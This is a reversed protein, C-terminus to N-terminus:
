VSQYTPQAFKKILKLVEEQTEIYYRAASKRSGVKVTISDAPLELFMDEDTADDGIAFIFDPKFDNVIEMAARGKNLESNKVEIVKNGMLLQLGHHPLLYRLHDVLEQARLNGLGSQVKRYHWALSYNKEEVVSGATMNTFKTMVHKIPYKWRTSIHTKTHWVFEPYNSWAGHEAVLYYQKDAFWDSLTDHPRGSIIVIQNHPNSQLDELVEYLDNTPTAESANNNFGILTGDYDLFFLCKKSESYKSM